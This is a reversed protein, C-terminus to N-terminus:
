ELAYYRLYEKVMAAVSYHEMAYRRAEDVDPVNHMAQVITQKLSSVDEPKCVLGLRGRDIVEWPGGGEPVVVPLKAAMAEAIVLGFGEYRASHCMLDYDKLHDYVYDRNRNGLFRVRDTVGCELALQQLYPLSKGEGIFDVQVEPLDKIAQILLDQGKKTHDLRGVQVIRYPEGPKYPKQCDKIAIKEIVIGNPVTKIRAQPFRNMVDDHVAESIAIMKLKAAQNISIHLDHVTYVTIKKIQPLLLRPLDHNHVHVVDPHLKFILRNLKWLYYPNRSGRPRNILFKSVKDSVQQFFPAEIERNVVILSVDHGLKAQQDMIDILMNEAGGTRFGFIIHLINM